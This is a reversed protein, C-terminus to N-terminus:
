KNNKQTRHRSVASSLQAGKVKHQIQVRVTFARYSLWNLLNKFVTKKYKIPIINYYFKTSCWIKRRAVEM